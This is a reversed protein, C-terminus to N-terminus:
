PGNLSLAMNLMTGDAIVSLFSAIAFFPSHLRTQELGCLYEPGIACDIICSYSGLPNTM